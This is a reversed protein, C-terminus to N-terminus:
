TNYSTLSEGWALLHSGAKKAYIEQLLKWGGNKRLVDPMLNAALLAYNEPVMGGYYSTPSHLIDFVGRKLAAAAKTPHVINHAGLYKIQVVGKGSDNVPKVFNTRFSKTMPNTPLLGTVAKLTVEAASVQFAFLAAASAAAFGLGTNIKIM